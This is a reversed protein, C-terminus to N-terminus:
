ENRVRVAKRVLNLIGVVCLMIVFTYISMTSANSLSFYSFAERQILISMTTTLGAPGGNTMVKMIDYANFTWIFCLFICSQLVDSIFPLLVYWFLKLGGAGELRAADMQDNPITCLKAYIMLTFFPFARWVNAMVAALMSLPGTSFFSFKPGVIGLSKLIWTLIGADENLMLSWTYGTIVSPLIWPILIFSKLLGGGKFNTFLLLASGVGILIAFVLNILTWIATRGLANWMRKEGALVIFNKFGVFPKEIESLNYRFFSIILNEVMPYLLFVGMMIMAPAILIYPTAKQMKNTTM